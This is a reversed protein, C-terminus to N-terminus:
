VKRQFDASKGWSLMVVQDILTVNQGRKLLHLATWSGNIGGGIVLADLM